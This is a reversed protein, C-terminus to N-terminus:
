AQPLWLNLKLWTNQVGCWAWNTSPGLVWNEPHPIPPLFPGHSKQLHSTSADFELKQYMEQIKLLHHFIMSINLHSRHQTLRANSLPVTRRRSGPLSTMATRPYDLAGVYHTINRGGLGVWFSGPSVWLTLKCIMASLVFFIGLMAKDVHGARVNALIAPWLAAHALLFCVLAVRDVAGGAEAGCASEVVAAVAAAAM